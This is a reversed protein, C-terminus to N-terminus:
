KKTHTFLRVECFSSQTVVFICCPPLHWELAIALLMVLAMSSPQAPSGKALKSCASLEWPLYLKQYGNPGVDLMLTSLLASIRTIEQGECCGVRSQARGPHGGNDVGLTGQRGAEPQAEVTLCLHQDWTEGYLPPPIISDGHLGRRVGRDTGPLTREQQKYPRSITVAAPQCLARLLLM